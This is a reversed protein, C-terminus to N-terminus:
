VVARGGVVKERFDLKGVRRVDVEGDREIESEERLGDPVNVMEPLQESLQDNVVSTPWSVTMMREPSSVSHGLRPSPIKPVPM